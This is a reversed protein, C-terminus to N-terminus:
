FASSVEANPLSLGHLINPVDDDVSLIIYREEPRNLIELHCFISAEGWGVRSNGKKSNAKMISSYRQIDEKSVGVEELTIVGEGYLRNILNLVYSRTTDDFMYLNRSLEDYVERTVIIEEVEPRKLLRIRRELNEPSRSKKLTELFFCTDLYYRMYLNTNLDYIYKEM